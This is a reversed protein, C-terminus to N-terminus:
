RPNILSNNVKKLQNELKQKETLLLKNKAAMEPTVSVYNVEALYIDADKYPKFPTFYQIIDEKQGSAYGLGREGGMGDDASVKYITNEM